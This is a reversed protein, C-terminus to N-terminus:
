QTSSPHCLRTFEELNGPSSKRQVEYHLGPRFLAPLHHQPSPLPAANNNDPGSACGNGCCMITNHSSSSFTHPTLVVMTRARTPRNAERPRALTFAVRNNHTQVLGPPRLGNQIGDLTQCTSTLHGHFCGGTEKALMSRLRRRKNHPM